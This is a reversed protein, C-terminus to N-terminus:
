KLMSHELMVAASEGGQRGLQGAQAHQAVQGACQAGADHQACTFM